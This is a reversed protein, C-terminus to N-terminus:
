GGGTEGSESRQGQPLQKLRTEIQNIGDTIIDAQQQTAVKEALLLQVAELLAIPKGLVRDIAWQPPPRREINRNNSSEKRIEKINGQADEVVTVSESQSERIVTCGNFLYDALAAKARNKIEDPCTKRFEQKAYAVQQSFQSHIELWDYFTREGIEGAQWGARDSGTERIASLIKEIREPTYKSKAM